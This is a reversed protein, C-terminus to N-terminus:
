GSSSITLLPRACCVSWVSLWGRSVFDDVDFSRIYFFVDDMVVFAIGLSVCVYMCGFILQFYIPLQLKEFGYPKVCLTLHINPFVQFCGLFVIPIFM